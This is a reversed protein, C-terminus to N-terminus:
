GVSQGVVEGLSTLIYRPGHNIPTTSAAAKAWVKKIGNQGLFFEQKEGFPIEFSDGTLEDGDM